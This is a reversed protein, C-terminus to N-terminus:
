AVEDISIQRLFLCDKGNNLDPKFCFTCHCRCPPNSFPHVDLPRYTQQNVKIPVFGSSVYIFRVSIFFLTVSISEGTSSLGRWLWCAQWGHAAWCGAVCLCPLSMSRRSDSFRELISTSRSWWIRFACFCLCVQWQLQPCRKIVLFM